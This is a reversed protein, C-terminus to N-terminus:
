YKISSLWSDQNMSLFCMHCKSPTYNYCCCLVCRWPWFSNGRLSHWREFKELQCALFKEWESLTKSHMSSNDTTKIHPMSVAYAGLSLVLLMLGIVIPTTVWISATFKLGGPILGSFIRLAGIGGILSASLALNRKSRNQLGNVVQLLRDIRNPQWKTKDIPDGMCLLCEKSYGDSSDCFSGHEPCLYRGRNVCLYNYTKENSESTM